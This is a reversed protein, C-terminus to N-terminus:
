WEPNTFKAMWPPWIPLPATMDWQRNWRTRWLHKVGIKGASLDLFSSNVHLGHRDNCARKMENASPEWGFEVMEERTAWPEDSEYPEMDKWTGCVVMPAFAAGKVNPTCWYTTGPENSVWLNITYSAYVTVGSGGSSWAAFPHRGGSALPKTASPCMWIKENMSPMYNYLVYPWCNMTEDGWPNSGSGREPFKGDHEDTYLKWFLGFQHQNSLDMSDKVAAKAKGLAPMMLSMLVAIVSIVVLLEILTFGKRKRKYMIVGRERKQVQLLDGM